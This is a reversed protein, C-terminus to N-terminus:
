HIYYTITINHINMSMVIQMDKHNYHVSKSRHFIMMMMFMLPQAMQGTGDGSNCSSEGANRQDGLRERERHATATHNQLSETKHCEKFTYFGTGEIYM